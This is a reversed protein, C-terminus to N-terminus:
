GGYLPTTQDRIRVFPGKIHAFLLVYFPECLRSVRPATNLRAALGNRTGRKSSRNANM